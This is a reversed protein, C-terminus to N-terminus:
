LKNYKRELTKMDVVEREMYRGFSRIQLIERSILRLDLLLVDISYNESADLGGGCSNRSLSTV